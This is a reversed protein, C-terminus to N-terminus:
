TKRFRRFVTVALFVVLSVAAVIVVATLVPYNMFYFWGTLIADQILTPQQQPNWDM